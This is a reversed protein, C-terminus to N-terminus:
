ASQGKEPKILLAAALDAATKPVSPSKKGNKGCQEPFVTRGQLGRILLYNRAMIRIIDDFEKTLPKDDWWSLEVPAVALRGILNDNDKIEKTIGDINGQAPDCLILLDDIIRPVQAAMIAVPQAREAQHTRPTPALPKDAVFRYGLREYCYLLALLRFAELNYKGVEFLALQSRNIGTEKAIFRQSLGLSSRAAKSQEPTIKINNM